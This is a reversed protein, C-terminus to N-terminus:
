FVSFPGNDEIKRLTSRVNRMMAQVTTVDVKRLGWSIRRRLQQDNKAEWGDKYVISGMMERWHVTELLLINKTM